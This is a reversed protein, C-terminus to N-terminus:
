LHDYGHMLKQITTPISFSKEKMIGIRRLPTAFPFSRLRHSKQPSVTFLLEYDEGEQIAASISAGKSRPLSNLDLQFSLRSARALKPLDAGLGDSLDMMASAIGRSALWEGEQIRPVFLFHKRKQSGGLKGTVWIEDGAKATSRLVPAHGRVEGWLSVSIMMQQTRTTEGGVMQVKWEHALQTIGQYIRSVHNSQFLSPIGIAVLGYLPRGGMAAVDSLARALAKRGVWEPKANKLFHVGEVITDVKFLGKAKKGWPLVACDDGVGVVNKSSQWRKTWQQIQEFEGM